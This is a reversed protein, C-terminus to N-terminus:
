GAKEMQLSALAEKLIGQSLPIKYGNHSLPQAGVALLHVAQDITSNDLKNNQLVAEIDPRRWPRPAVGGFVLRAENVRDDIWTLQAALSVLAFSWVRRDMAKLYTGRSQSPPVPIDIETIIEAPRLVTLCRSGEQPQQFFQELPLKRDGDPGNIHIEADLAILAPAPDSPHVTYCPGGGFVAHHANEGEKAYCVAGGKLWCQFQGRYYWCRSDQGLNGALTGRNRLQPSAATEIAKQLIPYQERVINNRAIEDLTALAGLRLGRSEHFSIENMGPITKLNVLRDPAIIGLRLETVLDTGGAIIRSNRSQELLKVAGSISNANVHEFNKM